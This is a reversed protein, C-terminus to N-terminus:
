AAAIANLITDVAFDAQEEDIMLPPSLRITAAHAEPQRDGLSDDLGM